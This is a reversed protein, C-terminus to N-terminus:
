IRDNSRDIWKTSTERWFNNMIQGFSQEFVVGFSARLLADAICKQALTHTYVFLDRKLQGHCVFDFWMSQTQQAAVLLDRGNFIIFVLSSFPKTKALDTRVQVGSSLPVSWNWVTCFFCFMKKRWNEHTNTTPTQKEVRRNSEILCINRKLHIAFWIWMYM